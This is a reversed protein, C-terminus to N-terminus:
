YFNYKPAVKINEPSALDPVITEGTISSLVAALFEWDAMFDGARFVSEGMVM